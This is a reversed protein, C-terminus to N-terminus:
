SASENNESKEPEPLPALDFLARDSARELYSDLMGLLRDEKLIGDKINKLMLSGILIKKRADDKREQKLEKSRLQQIRKTLQDRQKTLSDLKADSMIDSM